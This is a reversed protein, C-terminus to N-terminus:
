GNGASTGGNTFVLKDDTDYSFHGGFGGSVAAFANQDDGSINIDSLDFLTQGFASGCALLAAVASLFRLSHIPKM